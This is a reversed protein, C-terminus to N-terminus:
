SLVFQCLRASLVVGFLVDNSVTVRAITIAWAARLITSPTVGRGVVEVDKLKRTISEHGRCIYGDHVPDPFHHINAGLFQTHWYESSNGNAEALHAIFRNFPTLHQPSHGGYLVEVQKFVLFLSWGDYIAHHVTLRFFCEEPGELIEFHQLPMGLQIPAVNHVATTPSEQIQSYEWHIKQEVVAQLITLGNV